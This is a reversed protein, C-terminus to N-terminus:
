CRRIRLAQPRAKVAAPAHDTATVRVGRKLYELSEFGLGCGIELLHRGRLSPANVEIRQMIMPFRFPTMWPRVHDFLERSGVELSPDRVFQLGLTHSNWYDRVESVTSELTQDM